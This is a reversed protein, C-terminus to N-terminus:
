EVEKLAVTYEVTHPIPLQTDTQVYTITGGSEVDFFDIDDTIDTVEETALEYYLLVGSLSAKLEDITSDNFAVDRIYIYNSNEDWGGVSLGNTTSDTRISSSAKLEYRPCIVNRLGIASSENKCDSPKIFRFHGYSSKGVKTLTGMDVVGVRKHLKMEDFDFYDYASGASHLDISTLSTPIEVTALVTNDAKDIAEYYLIVGNMASKFASASTYNDNRIHIQNAGGGNMKMHLNPLASVSTNYPTVSYMHCLLNNMKPKINSITAFFHNSSDYKWTLSGLDVSAYKGKSVISEVKASKIGDYYPEYTGSTGKIIAVDNKYVNGYASTMDFSMYKANTPTTFNQTYTQSSIITKNVDYFCIRGLNSTTVYYRTSPEIEFIDSAVGGSYAHFEGNTDYYGNKWEENWINSCVVSKGGLMRVDAIRGGSLVDDTYADTTVKEFDYTQGKNIKWLADLSRNTEADAEKLKKTEETREFFELALNGEVTDISTQLENIANERESKETVIRNHNDQAMAHVLQEARELNVLTDEIANLNEANISPAQNNVYNRRTYNPTYM